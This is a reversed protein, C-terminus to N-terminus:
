KSKKRLLYHGLALYELESNQFVWMAEKPGLVIPYGHLNFSTNLLASLGTSKEFRRLIDYYSPNYDREIIQPRATGDAQHVAAIIESRHNPQTDFAFMMYPSRIPKPRRIYKDQNEALIVPAFPMWFDRMKIMHNIVQVNSLDRPDALISRNGLARAGFEMRDSARAVIKNELLLDAVTDEIHEIEEYEFNGEHALNRITEETDELGPGWYIPGIPDPDQGTEKVYASYAAGVANSEDGCSPFVFVDNVEQMEAILKNVKVNMFVGGALALKRIGTRTVAERVWRVILEETSSQLANAINDFRQYEFWRRLRRCILRTPEPIRREFILPNDKSLDLYSLLEKKLPESQKDSAYPAMGMIKYEHEWPSFGLMFTVRAYINGVSDTDPTSAIRELSLRSAISVSAALKDGGGDLTLVLVQDRWPSGYYAASAHCTHHDVFTIQRETFGAKKFRKLREGKLREKYMPYLPSGRAWGLIRSRTFHEQENRFVDRIIRTDFGRPQHVSALAVKDVEDPRLNASKLAWAIAQDPFGFYNKENRFREEQAGAAVRGDVLLVASANHGDHVGLVNM